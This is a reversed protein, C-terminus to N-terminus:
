NSNISLVDQWEVRKFHNWGLYFILPKTTKKFPCLCKSVKLRTFRFRNLHKGLQSIAPKKGFLLSNFLITWTLVGWETRWETLECSSLYLKLTLLNVILKEPHLHPMHLQWLWTKKCNSTQIALLLINISSINWLCYKDYLTSPRTAIM